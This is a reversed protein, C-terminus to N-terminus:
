ALIDISPDIIVTRSESAATEGIIPIHEGVLITTTRFRGEAIRSEAASRAAGRPARAREFDGILEALMHRAGAGMRLFEVCIGADRAIARVEAQVRLAMRDLRLLMEAQTGLELPIPSEVCCGGLGLNKLMGFLLAGEWPLCIIQARGRCSYRPNRRRDEARVLLSPMEGDM